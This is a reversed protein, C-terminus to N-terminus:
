GIDNGGNFSCQFAVHADHHQGTFAATRHGFQNGICIHMDADRVVTRCAYLFYM